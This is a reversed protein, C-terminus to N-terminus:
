SATTKSWSRQLPTRSPILIVLLSEGVSDDVSLEELPVVEESLVSWSSGRIASSVYSLEQVLQLNIRLLESKTDGLHEELGTNQSLNFLHSLLLDGVNEDGDL